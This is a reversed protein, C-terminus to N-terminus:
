KTPIQLYPEIWPSKMQDRALQSYKSNQGIISLNRWVSFAIIPRGQAYTSGALYYIDRYIDINQFYLSIDKDSRTSSFYDSISTFRFDIYRSSSYEFSHDVSLIIAYLMHLVSQEFRGTKYYFWALQSHADRAFYNHFHYITLIHDLGKEYYNSLIQHTLLSSAPQIFETDENVILSLSDEMLRYNEQEQYVKSLRYLVQYTEAPINFSNKLKYAKNYQAIALDSEGEFLFIDGIGSEAEPFFPNSIIAEQFKRFAQGYEKNEMFAKAQDYVLWYPAKDSQAFNQSPFASLLIILTIARRM